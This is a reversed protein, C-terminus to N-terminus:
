GLLDALAEVVGELRQNRLEVLVAEDAFRRRARCALRGCGGCLRRGALRRGLGGGVIGPAVEIEAGEAHGLCCRGWGPWRRRRRPRCCRRWRRRRPGIRGGVRLGLRLLRRQLLRALLRLRLGIGLALADLQFGFGLHTGLHLGLGAGVGLLLHLLLGFGPGLGFGVGLDLGRAVGRGLGGRLRLGLSVGFRLGPDLGLALRSLLGFPCALLRLPRALLGLFRRALRALFGLALGLFLGFLHAALVL